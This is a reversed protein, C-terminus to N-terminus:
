ICMPWRESYVDKYDGEIALCAVFGPEIILHQLSWQLLDSKDIGSWTLRPPMGQNISLSFQNLPVTLGLGKGKLYAEKCTWIEFFASLRDSAPLRRFWDQEETSFQSSVIVDLDNNPRVQELDLGLENCRAVAVAGLGHSGSVSFRIDCASTPWAITPKGHQGYAFRLAKPDCAAYQALIVRLIGRNAIFRRRHKIFKFRSARLHEEDDLIHAFTIEREADVDLKYHWVQVERDELTYDKPM